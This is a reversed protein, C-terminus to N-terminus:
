LQLTLCVVVVIIPGATNLPMCNEHRAASNATEWPIQQKSRFFVSSGTKQKM